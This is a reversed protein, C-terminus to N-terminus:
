THLNIKEWFFSVFGHRRFYKLCEYTLGHIKSICSWTNWSFIHFSSLECLCKNNRQNKRFYKWSYNLTNSKSFNFWPRIRIILLLFASGFLNSERVPCPRVLHLSSYEYIDSLLLLVFTVMAVFMYWVNKTFLSENVWLGSRVCSFWGFWVTLICASLCMVSVCLNWESVCSCSSVWVCRSSAM